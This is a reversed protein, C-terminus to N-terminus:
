ERKKAPIGLYFSDDEISKLILSCAGIFIHILSLFLLSEEINCDELFCKLEKCNLDSAHRIYIYNHTNLQDELEQEFFCKQKKIKNKISPLSPKHWEHLLTFTMDPYIKIIHVRDNQCYTGIM